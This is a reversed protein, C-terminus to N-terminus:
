VVMIKDADLMEWMNFSAIVLLLLVGVWVLLNMGRGIDLPINSRLESARSNLM